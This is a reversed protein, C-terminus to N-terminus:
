LESRFYWGVTVIRFFPLLKGISGNLNVFGWIRRWIEGFDYVFGSSIVAVLEYVVSRLAFNLCISVFGSISFGSPLLFAGPFRSFYLYPPLSLQKLLPFFPNNYHPKRRLRNSSNPTKLDWNIPFRPHGEGGDWLQMIQTPNM